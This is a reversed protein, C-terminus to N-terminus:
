KGELQPAQGNEDDQENRCWRLRCREVLHRELRQRTALVGRAKPGGPRGTGRTSSTRATRRPREIM